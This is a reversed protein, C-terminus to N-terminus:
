KVNTTSRHPVATLLAILAKDGKLSSSGVVVTEGVEMTFSTDIIARSGGGASPTLNRRKLEQDRRLEQLKASTEALKARASAVDPHRDNYKNRLVAIQHELLQTQVTISEIESTAASEGRGSVGSAIAPRLTFRVSWKGAAESSPNLELDYEQEDPGRLRSLVSSRGCCLTWQVDLLRYSKYPLFDKVDALAKRAAPPVNDQAAANQMDGLVLVVSFAGELNHPSRATQMMLPREPTVARPVAPPQASASAAMLTVVGAAIPRIIMM